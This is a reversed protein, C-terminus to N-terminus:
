ADEQAQVFGAPIDAAGNASNAQEAPPTVIVPEPPPGHIAALQEDNKKKLEYRVRQEAGPLYYDVFKMALRASFSIWSPMLHLAGGTMNRFDARLEGDDMIKAYLLDSPIQTAYEQGKTFVVFAAKEPETWDTGRQIQILMNEYVIKADRLGLSSLRAGITDKVDVELHPYRIILERIKGKLEELTRRREKRKQEDEVEDDEGPAGGSLAPGVKTQDHAPAGAEDRAVAGRAASAHLMHHLQQEDVDPRFRDSEDGSEVDNDDDVLQAASLSRKSM